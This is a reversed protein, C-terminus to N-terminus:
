RDEVSRGGDRGGSVLINQGTVWAAAPSALYLVAAAIDEPTGLRGLPVTTALRLLDPETFDLVRLFAETPVPGPSVANVRIGRPALEAAMTLTLNLVGAKAAAYAGTNPAARMGAGSAINIISGGPRMRTAAARAGQFAVVLNLELVSRFTDDSTDALPQVTKVDSGGANNVWVGIPGLADTAAQALEESSGADRLDAPWALARRGRDEVEAAVAAVEHRRRGTVVVDAGAEALGLAIGRGIGRGSGTVVAVAGDLRFRDLLGVIREGDKYRGAIPQAV